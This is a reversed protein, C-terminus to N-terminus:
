RPLREQLLKNVLRSLPRRVNLSAYRRVRNLEQATLESPHKSNLILLDLVAEQESPYSSETEPDNTGSAGLRVTRLHNLVNLASPRTHETVGNSGIEKYNAAILSSLRIEPLDSTLCEHCAARYTNTGGVRFITQAQTDNMDNVWDRLITFPGDEGCPCIANLKTISDCWPVLDLTRFPTQTYTGDLGSVIVTFTKRWETVVPVLDPFFQAEDVAIMLRDRQSPLIVDALTSVVQARHYEADHTVVFQSSDDYRTDSAHTVVVVTWGAMQFRRANRILEMSKGSFMPGVIMRLSM